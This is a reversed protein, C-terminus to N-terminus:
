PRWILDPTIDALTQCGALAMALDFEASLISMVQAAGAQGGAALGYYVPRGLLVAKAGLALAKLVDAGHRIGSDLLVEARNGVAAVVEPLVEITAPVTDLQRGGHNSVIIGRAGHETALLADDGRLVGKVLVPMKSLSALWDVDAWTLEPNWQDDIYKGLASGYGDGSVLPINLNAAVIGAPTHFGNRIDNLRRGLYPTDVTLVLGQYGAAEARAVLEQTLGKDRYVYLQFWLPGSPQGAYANAVVEMTQSSMTSLVVGFGNAGAAHAVGVEGIPHALRALAMPAILIPKAAPQGLITTNTQRQGVGRLMRPRLKIRSFAASNEALTTESDAGNAYYDFQMKPMVRRALAAFEPLTLANALDTPTVSDFHYAQYTAQESTQETM